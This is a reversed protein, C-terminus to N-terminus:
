AVGMIRNHLIRYVCLRSCSTGGRGAAVSPPRPTLVTVETTKPGAIAKPWMTKALVAKASM